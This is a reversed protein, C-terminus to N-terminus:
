PFGCDGRTFSERLRACKGTVAELLEISDRWGCTEARERTNGVLIELNKLQLVLLKGIVFEVEESNELHLSGIEVPLKQAQIPGKTGPFIATPASLRELLDAIRHTLVALLGCFSEASSYPLCCTCCDDRGSSDGKKEVGSGGKGPSNEHQQSSALTADNYIELGRPQERQALSACCQICQKCFSLNHDYTYRTYGHIKLELSNLTLLAPQLRTCSEAKEIHPSYIATRISSTPSPPSHLPRQISPAASSTSSITHHHSIVPPFSNHLVREPSATSPSPPGLTYPPTALQTPTGTKSLSVSDPMDYFSRGDLRKGFKTHGRKKIMKRQPTPWSLMSSGNENTRHQATVCSSASNGLLMPNAFGPQYM